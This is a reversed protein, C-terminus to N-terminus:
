PKRKQKYPIFRSLNLNAEEARVRLEGSQRKDVTKVMAKVKPAAEGLHQLFNDKWFVEKDCENSEDGYIDFLQNLAEVADAASTEPLGKVVTLLFIGIERNLAVPAALALQGLVGICKVGLGQFPDEHNENLGKSAHYLSIFKKHEDGSLFKQGHLTRAIAWALSTVTTALQVDSTDNSLVPAIIQEWIKQAVPTWARSIATNSKDSFDLCSVTWSINNLATVAHNLIYKSIEDNGDCSQILKVLEPIAKHILEKLTPLDDLGEIEDDHDDVGTVMEMDAEMEDEDMEDDEDGSVNDSLQEDDGGDMAIDKDDTEGKKEKKGRGGKELTEQLTTGISALVELALQLIEAPNSSGHGNAARMNLRTHELTQALMPILVADCAGDKGLNRDNWQAGSYANHLVACALVAKYDNGTRFRFLRNYVQIFETGSLIAEAFQQNDESLTIMCSLVNNIVPAITKDLVVLLFLFHVIPQSSVAADLAEDQAEALATIIATLSEAINWVFLQEARSSRSFPPDERTLTHSLNKCAHQIATMIDVRYLHICFDQEEEAVLVRLIEWGAARGELSTDTLTETLIIHVIKERLLLKRCKPDQVINSIARAATTRSKPETSQLDKIVPLISKERIAILEPDSLPKVPKTIPNPRQSGKARNRRSKGM